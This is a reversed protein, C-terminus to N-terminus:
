WKMEVWSFLIVLCCAISVLCCAASVPEVNDEIWFLFRDLM